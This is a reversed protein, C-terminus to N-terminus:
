IKICFPFVTFLLLPPPPNPGLFTELAFKWNDKGLPTTHVAIEEGAVNLILVYLYELWSIDELGKTVLTGVCVSNSM